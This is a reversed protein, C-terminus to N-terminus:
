KVGELIAKLTMQAKRAERQYYLADNAAAGERADGTEVLAILVQEREVDNLAPFQRHAIKVAACVAPSHDHM